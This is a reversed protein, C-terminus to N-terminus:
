SVHVQVVTLKKEWIIVFSGSGDRQMKKKVGM